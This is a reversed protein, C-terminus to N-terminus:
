QLELVRISPTTSSTEDITFLKTGNTIAVSNAGVNGTGPGTVNDITLNGSVATETLFTPAGTSGFVTGTLVGASNIGIVGAENVVPESPSLTSENGFFYNGSLSATTVNAAAGPEL